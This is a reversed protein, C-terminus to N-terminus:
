YPDNESGETNLYKILDPDTTMVDQWDTRLKMLYVRANFPGMGFPLPKFDPDGLDKIISQLFDDSIKYAPIFIYGPLPTVGYDELNLTCVGYPEENDKWATIAMTRNSTYVELRYEYKM